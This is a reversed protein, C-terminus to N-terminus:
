GRRTATAVSGAIHAARVRAVQSVFVELPVFPTNFEIAFKAALSPTRKTGTGGIIIPVPNQVPKPLASSNVVPYYRGHNSFTAGVPTAWLGTIV